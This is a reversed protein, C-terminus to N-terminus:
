LSIAVVLHSPRSACGAVGVFCKPPTNTTGHEVTFLNIANVEETVSYVKSHVFPFSMAWNTGRHLSVLQVM